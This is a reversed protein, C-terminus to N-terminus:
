PFWEIMFMQEQVSRFLRKFSDSECTLDWTLPTASSTGGRTFAHSTATRKLARM